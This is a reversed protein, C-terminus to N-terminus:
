SAKAQVDTPYHGWGGHDVDLVAGDEGYCINVPEGCHECAPDPCVDRLDGAYADAFGREWEDVKAMAWADGQDALTTLEEISYRRGPEPHLRSGCVSTSTNKSMGERYSGATVNKPVCGPTPAM